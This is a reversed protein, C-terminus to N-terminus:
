SELQNAIRRVSWPMSLKRRGAGRSCAERGLEGRADQYYPRRPATLVLSKKSRDSQHEAVSTATWYTKAPEFTTTALQGQTPFSERSPQLTVFALGANLFAPDGAYTAGSKSYELRARIKRYRCIPSDFASTIACKVLEDPNSQPVSLGEMSAYTGKLSVLM